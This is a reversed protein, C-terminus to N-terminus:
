VHIKQFIIRNTLDTVDWNYFYNMGLEVGHPQHHIERCKSGQSGLHRLCVYAARISHKTKSRKTLYIGISFYHDKGFTEKYQHDKSQWPNLIEYHLSPIMDWVIGVIDPINKSICSHWVNNLGFKFTGSKQNVWAYSLAYSLRNHEAHNQCAAILKTSLPISFIYTFIGDIQFM